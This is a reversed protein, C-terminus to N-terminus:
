REQAQLHRSLKEGLQDLSSTTDKEGGLLKFLIDALLGKDDKCESAVASASCPVDLSQFVVKALTTKGIGHCGVISVVKLREQEGAAAPELLKLVEKKPEAIGVLEEEPIYPNTSSQGPDQEPASPAAGGTFNKRREYASRARERLVQIEKAFKVSTGKTKQQHFKRGLWGAKDSCALRDTFQDIMDEIDYALEQVELIWWRLEKSEGDKEIASNIMVMDCKIERLNTKLEKRLKKNKEITETLKTLLIGVVRNILLAEM